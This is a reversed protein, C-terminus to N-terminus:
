NSNQTNSKESSRDIEQITNTKKCIQQKKFSFTCRLKKFAPPLHRSQVAQPQSLIWLQAQLEQFYHFVHIHIVSTLSASWTQM